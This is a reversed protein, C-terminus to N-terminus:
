NTEQAILAEDMKLGKDESDGDYKKRAVLYGFGYALIGVGIGTQICFFLTEMEAPLEGGILRELVPEFWPEYEGGSVEDVMDSGQGDSGEFEAGPLFFLPALILAVALVILIIVTKTRTKTKTETKTEM